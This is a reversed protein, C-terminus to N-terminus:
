AASDETSSGFFETVAHKVYLAAEESVCPVFLDCTGLTIRSVHSAQSFSAPHIGLDELLM